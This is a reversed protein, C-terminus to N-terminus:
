SLKFDYVKEFTKDTNNCVLHTNQHIIHINNDICIMNSVNFTDRDFAPPFTIDYMHHQRSKLDITILQYHEQIIYIISNIADYCTKHRYFEQERFQMWDMNFIRDYSGSKTNYKYIYIIEYDINEASSPGVIIFENDNPKLLPYNGSEEDTISVLTPFFKHYYKYCLDIIDTSILKNKDKYTLHIYGSVTFKDRELATLLGCHM